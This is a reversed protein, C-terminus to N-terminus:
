RLLLMKKTEVFRKRAGKLSTAELKYLYIGSAVNAHWTVSQIGAQQETDILESVIQGLMNYIVLRVTSRSPLIYRIITSPNFPNPFNQLLIYSVPIENQDENVETSISNGSLKITDPSTSTNSTIFIMGNRVGSSDPTFRVTDIKSQGPPILMATPHVSFYEKTSTISLIRLTDPGTNSITFTTDMSQGIRTNPFVINSTSFTIVPNDDQFVSIYDQYEAYNVTFIRHLSQDVAIAQTTVGAGARKIIEFTKLTGTIEDYIFVSNIGVFYVHNAVYLFDVKSASQGLNIEFSNDTVGDIVTAYGDVEVDTYVRDSNSNYFLRMADNSSSTFNSSGNNRNYIWYPGLTARYIKNDKWNVVLDWCNEGSVTTLGLTNGDIIDLSNGQLYGIFIEHTVSNVGIGSTLGADSLDVTQIIETNLDIVILELKFSTTIGYLRRLNEDKVLSYTSVNLYHILTNARADIVAIGDVTPIYAKGSIEDVVICNALTEGIQLEALLSLTACDYILLNDTLLDATQDCVLLKHGTQYVAMHIPSMGPKTITSILQQGFLSTNVCTFMFIFLLYFCFQCKQWISPRGTLFLENCFLAKKM